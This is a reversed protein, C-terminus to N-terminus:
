FRCHDAGAFEASQMASQRFCAGNEGTGLRRAQLGIVLALGQKLGFMPRANAVIRFIDTLVMKQGHQPVLQAIRQRCDVAGDGEVLPLAM